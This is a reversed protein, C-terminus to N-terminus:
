FFFSSSPIVEAEKEIILKEQEFAVVPLVGKKITKLIYSSAETLASAFKKASDPAIDYYTIVDDTASLQAEKRLRQVRNILERAFGEHALSADASTDCNLLVV